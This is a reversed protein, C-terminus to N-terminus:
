VELRQIEGSSLVSELLRCDSGQLLSGHLGCSKTRVDNQGRVLMIVNALPTNSSIKHQERLALLATLTHIVYRM